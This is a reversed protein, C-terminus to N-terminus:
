RDQHGLYCWHTVQYYDDMASGKLYWETSSPDLDAYGHCIKVPSEFDMVKVLVVRSFEDGKDIPLPLYKDAAVWNSNVDMIVSRDVAYVLILNVQNLLVTNKQFYNNSLYKKLEAALLAGRLDKGIIVGAPDILYNSPLYKIDYQEQAIHDFDSLQPWEMIQLLQM